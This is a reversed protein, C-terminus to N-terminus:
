TSRQKQKKANVFSTVLNDLGMARSGKILVVSEADLKDKLLAEAEKWSSVVDATLGLPLTKKTWKVLDGVLIVHRLSPVKRLFRGLQRHWFPSNVGLELMDGLVLVKQAKTNLHQFALLSAKTSEPNANYCDNIVVGKGAPLFKEEFRGQVTVKKQLGEIITDVPIDLLYAVAASAAANNVMGLHTHHLTVSYKTKYIKLIFTINNNGVHVKRVQIQNCTKSGFKVVPHKYSVQSLIPNDGHIIGINSETFYKFIDRKELAIDALSGLGEMHSHGVNTILATTPKLMAVRKAMEGRKSVGVEFVAAKHHARMRLINLALGIQTNQNDHSILYDDSHLKLITAVMEKTSTKGVSGTIAIIPCDFQTRWQAALLYLAKLTDNVVVVLKDRLLNKQIGKLLQQKKASIILGQAGRELADQLFEHGDVHNGQLAVFIEGKKITRSDISFLSEQPFTDFLISADPIAKKVLQGDLRM